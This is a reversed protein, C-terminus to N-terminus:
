PFLPLLCVATDDNCIRVDRFRLRLMEGPRMMSCFCLRTCVAFELLIKGISPVLLAAEWCFSFMLRLVELPVPRRHQTRLEMKWSQLSTWSRNLHKRLRPWKHQLSLIAHKIRGFPIGSDYGHQVFQAVIADIQILSYTAIDRASGISVNAWIDFEEWGLQLQKLYARSYRSRELRTRGQRRVM